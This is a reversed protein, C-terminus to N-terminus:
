QEGVASRGALAAVLMTGQTPSVPVHLVIMGKCNTMQIAGRSESYSINVDRAGLTEVFRVVGRIDAMQLITALTEPPLDELGCGKHAGCSGYMLDEHCWNHSPPFGPPGVESNMETCQRCSGAPLGRVSAHRELVDIFESPYAEERIEELGLAQPLPAAFV